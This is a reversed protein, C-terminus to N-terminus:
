ADTAANTNSQRQVTHRFPDHEDGCTEHHQGSSTSLPWTHCQRSTHGFLECAVGGSWAQSPCSLDKGAPWADIQLARIDIYSSM